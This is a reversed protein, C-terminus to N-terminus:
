EGGITVRRGNVKIKNECFLGVAQPLLQHEINLVKQQVMEPTDDSSVTVTDQLVVPGTDTGEDVFHVTAGTLKVGYEVVAKHVHMGYYGDGCFSPILAPHINMIRNEYSRIIEKPIIELYGALIVLDPKLTDSTKLLAKNRDEKQPYNGKGIYIPEINNHQARELVFAKKRNSIVGVIHGKITKNQIGDIIVQLNSGGGSALVVLRKENLVM